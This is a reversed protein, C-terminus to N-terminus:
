IASIGYAAFASILLFCNILPLSRAIGLFVTLNWESWEELQIAGNLGAVLAAVQIVYPVSLVIWTFVNM